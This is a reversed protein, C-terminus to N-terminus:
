HLLSINPDEEVETVEIWMNILNETPNVVAVIDKYYLSIEDDGCMPIYEGIYYSGDTQFRDVVVLLPNKVKIGYDLHDQVIETVIVEGTIMKIQKIKRKM